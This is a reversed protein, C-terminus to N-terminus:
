DLEVREPVLVPLLKELSEDRPSNACENAQTALPVGSVAM